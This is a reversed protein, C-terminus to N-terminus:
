SISDCATQYNKSWQYDRFMKREERIWVASCIMRILRLLRPQSRRGTFAARPAITQLVASAPAYARLRRRM